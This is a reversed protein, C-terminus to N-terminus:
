KFKKVINNPKILEITTREKGQLKSPIHIYMCDGNYEEDNTFVAYYKQNSTQSCVKYLDTIMVHNKKCYEKYQAIARNITEPLLTKMHEILLNGRYCVCFDVNGFFEVNPAILVLDADKVEELCDKIQEDGTKLGKGVLSDFYVDAEEKTGFVDGEHIYDTDDGDMVEDSVWVIYKGRFKNMLVLAPSGNENFAGYKTLFGYTECREYDDFVKAFEMLQSSYWIGIYHFNDPLLAGMYKSFIRDAHSVTYDNIISVLYKGQERTLEPWKNRSINDKITKLFAKKCPHNDDKLYKELCNFQQIMTESKRKNKKKGM